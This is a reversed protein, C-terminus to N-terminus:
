IPKLPKLPKLAEMADDDLYPSLNHWQLETFKGGAEKYKRVIIEFSDSSLYPACDYLLDYTLNEEMAELLALLSEEELYYKVESIDTESLPEIEGNTIAEALYRGSLESNSYIIMDRFEDSSLSEGKKLLLILAKSIVDDDLYYLYEMIEDKDAYGAQVEEKIIAAKEEDMSYYISEFANEKLGPYNVQLNRIKAEQGVLKIVNRGEKLTIPVSTSEGNENIVTVNGDPDVFVVKFRGNKIEFASKVEIDKDTHANVVMVTAAGNLSMVNCRIRKGGMYSVMNWQDCIDDGAIMADDEYTKWAEGNKDVWNTMSVADDLGSDMWAAFPEWFYQEEEGNGEGSSIQVSACATLVTLCGMLCLSLLVKAGNKKKYSVIGKLREKLDEKRELLTLSPIKKGAGINRQATDLLINGYAKKGERTLQGLVEEDCALECDMNMKRVVLYLIPNFWHICLLIQYLWKYWLDKRKVHILEHHLIMPLQELDGKEEPLVITTRWLGITIPGQISKCECILPKRRIHLRVCLGEVAEHVRYDSTLECRKRIGSTFLCYDIIKLFLSVIAGLIWIMAAALGLDVAPFGGQMGDEQLSGSRPAEVTSEQAQVGEAAHVPLSEPAEAADMGAANEQQRVTGPTLIESFETHIYVPFMLRAAVLLWIYYNWRKSCVRKTFPHIVLILVGALAGSLSLSLVRMFIEKM